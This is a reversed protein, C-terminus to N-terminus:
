NSRVKGAVPCYQLFLETAAVVDGPAAKKMYVPLSVRGAYYQLLELPRGRFLHCLLCFDRTLLVTLGGTAQVTKSPLGREVSAYWEKVLRRYQKEKEAPAAKASILALLEKVHKIGALRHYEDMRGSVAGRSQLWQDFVSAALSHATDAPRVLHAYLTNKSIFFQLAELPHIGFLECAKYFPAPLHLTQKM